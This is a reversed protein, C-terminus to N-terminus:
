VVNSDLVLCVLTFVNCPFSVQQERIAQWGAHVSMKFTPVFDVREVADSPLWIVTWKLGTCQGDVGGLVTFVPNVPDIGIAPVSKLIAVENSAVIM